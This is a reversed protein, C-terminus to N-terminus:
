MIYRVIYFVNLPYPELNAHLECNSVPYEQKPAM